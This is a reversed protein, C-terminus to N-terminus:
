FILQTYFNPTNATADKKLRREPLCLPQRIITPLLTAGGGALESGSM